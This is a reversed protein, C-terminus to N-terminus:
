SLVCHRQHSSAVLTLLERGDLSDGGGGHCWYQTGEWEGRPAHVDEARKGVSYAFTLVKKKKNYHVAEGLPDFGLGDCGYGCSLHTFKYPAVNDGSKADRAGYNEIITPLKVSALERVVENVQAALGAERGYRM